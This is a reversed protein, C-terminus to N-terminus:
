SEGKKGRRWHLLLQELSFGPGLAAMMGWEGEQGQPYIKELVFLVSASSLNGYHRLIERSYEVKGPPLGFSEVYADLVKKGGPHLLYHSIGSLALNEKGLYEEVANRLHKRIFAPIDRSFRVKLGNEDLDWGMVEYSDPFLTGYASHFHPYVRGQDPLPLDEGQILVAAAGEGFLSAAILNSKTLDEPIFTLGVLELALLLIRDKPYAKALEFARALGVVGGACGLGWIPTRMVHRDMGLDQIIYADVTPTAIGTSSIFLFHRIQDTGLNAKQLARQIAEKGLSVAKELYLRNRESFSHNEFFWSSPMSFYREKIETHDFVPLYRELNPFSRFLEKALEKVQEQAFRYPPTATGVSLIIPM